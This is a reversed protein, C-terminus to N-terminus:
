DTLHPSPHTSTSPRLPPLISLNHPIPIHSPHIANLRPLTSRRRIDVLRRPQPPREMKKRYIGDTVGREAACVTTSGRFLNWLSYLARLHISYASCLLSYAIYIHALSLSLFDSALSILFSLGLLSFLGTLFLLPPLTPRIFNLIDSPTTLSPKLLLAHPLGYRVLLFRHGLPPQLPLLQTRHETQSRLALPRALPPPLPHPKNRAGERLHTSIFRPPMLLTSVQVTSILLDAVDHRREM